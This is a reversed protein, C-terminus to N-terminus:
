PRGGQQKFAIPNVLNINKSRFITRIEIVDQMTSEAQASNTLETQMEHETDHQGETIGFETM